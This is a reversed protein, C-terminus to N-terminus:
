HQHTSRPMAQDLHLAIAAWGLQPTIRTGLLPFPGDSGVSSGFQDTSLDRSQQNSILVLLHMSFRLKDHVYPHTRIYDAMRADIHICIDTMCPKFHGIIDARMTRVHTLLRTLLRTPVTSMFQDTGVGLELM